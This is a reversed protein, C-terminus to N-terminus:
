TLAPLRSRVWVIDGCIQVTAGGPHALAFGTTVLAIIFLWLKRM